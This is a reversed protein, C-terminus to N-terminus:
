PMFAPSIASNSIFDALKLKDHALGVAQLVRRHALHEDAILGM